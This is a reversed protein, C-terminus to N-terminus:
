SKQDMGEAETVQRLCTLANIATPFGAYPVTYLITEEIQQATVGVHIAAHMHSRLQPERGGLATLLAVCAIERERPLLGERSYIDGFAFEVVFGYRRCKRTREGRHVKRTRAHIAEQRTATGNIRERKGTQDGADACLSCIEKLLRHWQM